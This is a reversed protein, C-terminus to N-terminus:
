KVTRAKKELELLRKICDLEVESPNVVWLSRNRLMSDGCYRVFETNCIVIKKATNKMSCKAMRCYPKCGYFNDVIIKKDAEDTILNEYKAINMLFPTVCWSREWSTGAPQNPRQFHADYVPLRIYYLVKGKNVAKWANHITWTPKMKNERLYAIFDLANKLVNGSLYHPLVDEINPKAIKQVALSTIAAM